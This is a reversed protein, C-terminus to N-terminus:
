RADPVQAPQIDNSRVTMDGGGILITLLGSMTALRVQSLGSNRAPCAFFGFPM